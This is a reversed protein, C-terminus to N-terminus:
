AGSPSRHDATARMRSGGSAKSAAPFSSGHTSRSALWEAFIASLEATWIGNNASLRNRRKSSIGRWREQSMTKFRVMLGAYKNTTSALIWSVNPGSAPAVKEAASSSRGTSCRARHRTLWGCWAPWQVVGPLGGRGNGIPSSPWLGTAGMQPRARWRNGARIGRCRAETTSM